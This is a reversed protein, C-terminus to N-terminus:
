DVLILAIYPPQVVWCSMFSNVTSIPLVTATPASLPNVHDGATLQSLKNSLADVLGTNTYTTSQNAKTTLAVVVETQTNFM